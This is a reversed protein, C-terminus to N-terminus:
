QDAYMKQQFTLETATGNPPTVVVDFTLIDRDSHKLEALYYVADGEIVETFRLTQTQSLLNKVTGTLAEVTLGEGERLLSLNVLARDRARTIEYKASTKADLFTTPIVVYHLEYGNFDLKQEAAASPVLTTLWLGLVLQLARASWSRFSRPPLGQM